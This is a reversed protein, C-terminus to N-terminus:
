PRVFGSLFYTNGLGSSQYGYLYNKFTKGKFNFGKYNKYSDSGTSYYENNFYSFAIELNESSFDLVGDWTMGQYNDRCLNFYTIKAPGKPFIVQKLNPFYTGSLYYEAYGEPLIITKLTNKYSTNSTNNLYFKTSENISGATIGLSEELEGKDPFTAVEPLNKSLPNCFDLRNYSSSYSYYLQTSVYTINLYPLERAYREKMAALASSTFSSPYEVTMYGQLNPHDTNAGSDDIGQCHNLIYNLVFNSLTVNASQEFICYIRNLSKYNAMLIDSANVRTNKLVLTQLSDFTSPIITTLNIHDKVTLNTLTTPLELTTLDGGEVFTVGKLGSGKAKFERLATCSSVDLNGTLNPCNSVDITRLLKNNGLTLSTLHTNTYGTSSDGIKLASLRVGKSVDVTGPFKPSLDGLDSINEAGYIITETDNFVLGTPCPVMTSNNAAGRVKVDSSGYKIKLYQDIYPTIAFTGNNTYMRMTMFDALYEPTEFKSDLYKIRNTIWWEFHSIRTGQAVYAYTTDNDEVIPGIYKFQADANFQAESIKDVQGQKFIRMMTDYSLKGSARLSLYM